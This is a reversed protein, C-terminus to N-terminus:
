FTVLGAANIQFTFPDNSSSKTVGFDYCLLLPSPDSVAGGVNLNKIIVAYRANAITSNSWTEDAADLTKTTGSINSTKVTLARGGAVYNGSTPVENAKIDGYNVQTAANPTFSSTMLIVRIEDDVFDFGEDALQNKFENFILSVM